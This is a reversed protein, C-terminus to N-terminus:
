QLPQPGRLEPPMQRRKVEDLYALRCHNPQWYFLADIVRCMFGFPKRQIALRYAYSSMTEDPFGGLLTTFLQDIGILVNLIYRAM